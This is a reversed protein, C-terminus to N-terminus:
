GILAQPPDGGKPPLQVVEFPLTQTDIESLECLWMKREKDWHFGADKAKQREQFSVKAQYLYKPRSAREAAEVVMQRLVQPSEMRDFLTAILQCDTLARHASWVSVDHDLCLTVLSLRSRSQKPFVFDSMTCLWPLPEGQRNVLVRNSANFWQRDFKANHAVIYDAKYMMETFMAGFPSVIEASLQSVVGPPIRNLHAQPNDAEDFLMSCQYVVTQYPISYLIAGIELVVDVAPNLGNTELDVILLHQPQPLATETLTLSADNNM